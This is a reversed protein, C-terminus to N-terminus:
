QRYRSIDTAHPQRYSNMARSPCKGHTGSEHDAAARWSPCPRRACLNSRGRAGRHPIRRRGQGALLAPCHRAMQRTSLFEADIPKRTAVPATDPFSALSFAPATVALSAHGTAKAEGHEVTLSLGESSEEAQVLLVEGDYIPKIFRAEILGRELFARSWKAVPVHIMYALIDIGPVLGGRFGYKLAVSDDHMKNESLKATNFAEVRYAELRETM